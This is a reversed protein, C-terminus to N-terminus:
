GWRWCSILTGNSNLICGYDGDCVDNDNPGVYVFWTDSQPDFYVIRKYYTDFLTLESEPFRTVIIEQAIKYADWRNTIKPYQQDNKYGIEIQRAYDDISYAGGDEPLIRLAYMYLCACLIVFLALLVTFAIIKIRKTGFM